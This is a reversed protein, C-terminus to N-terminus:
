APVAKNERSTGSNTWNCPLPVCLHFFHPVAHPV